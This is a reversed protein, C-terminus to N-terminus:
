DKVLEIGYTDKLSIDVIALDPSLSEVARLAEHADEAEGCVTLDPEQQIMEGLRERVMPHDDVILVRVKAVGAPAASAPTRASPPNPSIKRPASGKKKAPKTKGTM